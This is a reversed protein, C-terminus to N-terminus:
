PLNKRSYECAQVKLVQNFLKLRIIVNFRQKCFLLVTQKLGKRHCPYLMLHLHNEEPTISDAYIILVFTFSNFRFYLVNMALKMWCM